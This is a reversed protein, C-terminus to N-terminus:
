TGRRALVDNIESVVTCLTNPEHKDRSTFLTDCQCKSMRSLNELLAEARAARTGYHHRLKQEEILLEEASPQGM